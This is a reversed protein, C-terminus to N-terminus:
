RAYLDDRTWRGIELTPQTRLRALLATRAKEAFRSQEEIPAIKAEKVGKLIQFFERNAQAASVTKEM